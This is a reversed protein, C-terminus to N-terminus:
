VSHIKQKWQARRDPVDDGKKRASEGVIKKNRKHRSKSNASRDATHGGGGVLIGQFRQPPEILDNRGISDSNQDGQRCDSGGRAQANPQKKEANDVKSFLNGDDV